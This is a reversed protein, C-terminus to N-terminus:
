LQEDEWMVLERRYEPVNPQISNDACWSLYLSVTSNIRHEISERDNHWNIRREADWLQQQRDNASGHTYYPAFAQIAPDRRLERLTKRHFRSSKSASIGEENGWEAATKGQVYVAHILSQERKPLRAVAGRVIRQLDTIEIGGTVNISEDAIMDAITIDECDNVPTDLSVAPMARMKGNRINLARMCAAKVHYGLYSSFMSKGTKYGLVAHHFGIWCEQMLDEEDICARRCLRMYPQTLKCILRRMNEYLVAEANTDGEQARVALEENAMAEYSMADRGKGTIYDFLVLDDLFSPIRGAPAPMEQRVTKM